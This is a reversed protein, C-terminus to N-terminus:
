ANRIEVDKVRKFCSHKRGFEVDPGEPWRRGPLLYRMETVNYWLPTAM